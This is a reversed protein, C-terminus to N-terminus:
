GLMSPSPGEWLSVFNSGQALFVLSTLSLAVSGARPGADLETSRVCLNFKITTVPTIGAGPKPSMTKDSSGVIDFQM